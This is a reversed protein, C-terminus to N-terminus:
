YDAKNWDVFGTSIHAEFESKEQETVTEYNDIKQKIRQGLAVTAEFDDYFQFEHLTPIKISKDKKPQLDHWKKKVEEKEQDVMEVDDDQMMRARRPNKTVQQAAMQERRNKLEQEILERMKEKNDRFDTDMFQFCDVTQLTLDFAKGQNRFKVAQM